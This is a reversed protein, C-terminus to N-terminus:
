YGEIDEIPYNADSAENSFHWLTVREHESSAREQVIPTWQHSYVHLGVEKCVDSDSRGTAEAMPVARTAM